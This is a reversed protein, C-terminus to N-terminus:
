KCPASATITLTAPSTSPMSCSFGAATAQRDQTGYSVNPAFLRLSGEDSKGTAISPFRRIADNGDGIGSSLILRSIYMCVGFTAVVPHVSPEPMLMRRWRRIVQYAQVYTGAGPVQRHRWSLFLARLNAQQGLIYMPIVALACSTCLTGM